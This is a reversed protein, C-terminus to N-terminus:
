GQPMGAVGRRMLDLALVSMCLKFILRFLSEPTKRLINTGAWTGVLGTVVMAAILPLWSAFAFGALAFVMVKVLHQLTMVAATTALFTLRDGFTKSLVVANFPGTAGFIMTMFTTVVGTLAFGITGIASLRPLRIWAMFLIFGGLAVTVMPDSLKGVALGGAFGGPLAGIFFAALPSWAVHKRLAAMRGANSGLQVVGHVPIVAGLPILYGMLGLMALGGGIGASVTLASTFFSAAILVLAAWPELGPPALAAAITEM